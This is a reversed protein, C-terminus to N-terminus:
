KKYIETIPATILQKFLQINEERVAVLVATSPGASCTLDLTCTYNAGTFREIEAGIGKSGTPWLASLWGEQLGRYIEKLKAVKDAQAIVEYGVLPEGVVFFQCDATLVTFAPQGIMTLSMASQLASFNSESSGTIPPLAEGIENFIQQCGQVYDNWAADGSFNALLLQVPKAGACWQELMATRATFAATVVNSVQVIDADKEGICGSNDITVIMQEVRISNRM